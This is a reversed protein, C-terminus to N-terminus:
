LASRAAVVELLRDLKAQQEVLSVRLEAVVLVGLRERMEASLKVVDKETTVFGDAGQAKALEVLGEVDSMSYAHHDRFVSVAAVEPGAKALMAFFGEPRALGCFAVARKPAPAGEAFRLERRVFWTAAKGSIGGAFGEDERLVVM